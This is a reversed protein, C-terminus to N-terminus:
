ARGSCTETCYSKAMSCRFDAAKIQSRLLVAPPGTCSTGAMAGGLFREVNTVKDHRTLQLLAKRYVDYSFFNVAQMDAHLRCSQRQQLRMQLIAEGGMRWICVCSRAVSSIFLLM